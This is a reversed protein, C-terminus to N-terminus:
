ARWRVFWNNIESRIECWGNATICSVVNFFDFIDWLLQSLTRGTEMSIVCMSVPCGRIRELRTMNSTFGIQNKSFQLWINEHLVWLNSDNERGSTISSANKNLDYRELVLIWEDSSYKWNSLLLYKIWESDFIAKWCFFNVAFFLFFNLWNEDFFAEWVCSIQWTSHKKKDKGQICM